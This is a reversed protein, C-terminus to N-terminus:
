FAQIQQPKKQHLYILFVEEQAKQIRPLVPRHHRERCPRHAPHLRVPPSPRYAPSPKRKATSAWSPTVGANTPAGAARRSPLSSSPTWSGDLACRRNTRTLTYLPRVMLSSSSTWSRDHNHPLPFPSLHLLSRHLKKAQDAFGQTFSSPVIINEVGPAKDRRPRPVRAVASPHHVSTRYKDQNHAHFSLRQDEICSFVDILFENM